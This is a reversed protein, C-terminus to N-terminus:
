GPPQAPHLRASETRSEAANPLGGKRTHPDEHGFIYCLESRPAITRSPRPPNEFPPPMSGVIFEVSAFCVRRPRNRIQRNPHPSRQNPAAQRRPTTTPAPAPRTDGSKSDPPHHLITNARNTDHQGTGPSPFCLRRRRDVPKKGTIPDTSYDHAHCDGRMGPHRAPTTSPPSWRWGDSRLATLLEAQGDSGDVLAGTAGGQPRVSRSGVLRHGRGGGGRQGNM